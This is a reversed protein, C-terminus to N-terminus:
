KSTSSRADPASKLPPLDSLSIQRLQRDPCYQMEALRRIILKTARQLFHREQPSLETALGKAKRAESGGKKTSLCAIRDLLNRSIKYKSAANDRRGANKKIVTLCFYAMTALPERDQCCRLYRQHMTEIDSNLAIGSPPLPYKRVSTTLKASGMGRIEIKASLRVADSAPNRDVVEAKVFELRFSDPNSYRLTADFEWLRIYEVLSDRAQEVTAYHEKFEFRVKKDDVTLIFGSEDRDLSEAESYDITDGHNIRYNLAIVHPDNM